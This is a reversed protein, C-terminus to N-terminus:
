HSGRAPKRARRYCPRRWTALADGSAAADAGAAGPCLVHVGPQPLSHPRLARTASGKSYGTPCLGGGRAADDERLLPRGGCRLVAGGMEAPLETLTAAEYCGQRARELVTEDMDTGVVSFAVDSARAAVCQEWFIKLSYVEEGSACGASWAAVSRGEVGARLTIAPLVRSGLTAFVGRDRLFRSITIRCFGDVVVWEEPHESIYTRYANFGSIGLSQIRGKLRRCVQRRVKRFGPWNLEIRPLAWQLFEVCDNDAM